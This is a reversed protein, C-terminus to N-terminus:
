ELGIPEIRMSSISTTCGWQNEVTGRIQSDTFSPTSLVIRWLPPNELNMNEINTPMPFAWAYKLFISYSWSGFNEGLDRKRSIEMDIIGKANSLGKRAKPL